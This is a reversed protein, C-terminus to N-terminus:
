RQWTRHSSMYRLDSL